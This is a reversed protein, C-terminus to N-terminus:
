STPRLEAPAHRAREVESVLDRRDQGNRASGPREEGRRANVLWVLLGCAELLYFFARWYDSTSELVVREIGMEFLEDALGAIVNTTAPVDWVKTVRRGPVSRHPLRVCVKGSSKAVHIAAVRELREEHEDADIEEVNNSM